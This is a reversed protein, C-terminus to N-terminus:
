DDKKPALGGRSSSRGSRNQRMHVGSSDGRNAIAGGTVVTSNDVIERRSSSGRSNSREYQQADDEGLSAAAILEAAVYQVAAKATEAVASIGNIVPQAMQTWSEEGNMGGNHAHANDPIEAAQLSRALAEDRLIQMDPPLLSEAALAVDGGTNELATRLRGEAVNPFMEQLSDM